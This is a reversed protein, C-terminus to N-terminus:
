EKIEKQGCKNVLEKQKKDAEAREEQRARLYQDARQKREDRSKASVPASPKVKIDLTESKEGIPKDSFHVKGNEDTWKYIEANATLSFLVLM